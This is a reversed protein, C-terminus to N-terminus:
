DGSGTNKLAVELRDREPAGKPHTWRHVFEMHLAGADDLWMEITGISVNDLREGYKEATLGETWNQYIAGFLNDLVLADGLNGLMSYTVDISRKGNNWMVSKKRLRMPGNM